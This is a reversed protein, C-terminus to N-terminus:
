PIPCKFGGTGPVGFECPAVGCHAQPDTELRYILRYSPFHETMAMTSCFPIETTHLHPETNRFAIGFSTANPKPTILYEETQAGTLTLKVSAVQDQELKVDEALKQTAKGPSPTCTPKATTPDEEFSYVRTDCPDIRAEVKNASLIRIRSILGGGVPYAPDLFQPNINLSATNDVWGKDFEDFDLLRALKVNSFGKYPTGDARFATVVVDCGTIDILLDRYEQGNSTTITADQVFIIPQHNPYNDKVTPWNKEEVCPPLNNPPGPNRGDAMLAWVPGNAQDPMKVAMLGEFMMTLKPTPVPTADALAEAQRDATEEAKKCAASLGLIFALSVVLLAASRM